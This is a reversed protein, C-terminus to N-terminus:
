ILMLARDADVLDSAPRSPMKFHKQKAAENQARSQQNAQASPAQKEPAHTSPTVRSPTHTLPIQTSPTQSSPAQAASQAEVQPDEAQAQAKEGQDKQKVASLEQSDHFLEHILVRQSDITRGQEIILMTMLAYSILFLVVLVPLWGQKKKPEQAPNM